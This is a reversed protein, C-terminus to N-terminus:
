PFISSLLTCNHDLDVLKTEDFTLNLLGLPPTVEFYSEYNPLPGPMPTKPSSTGSDCGSEIGSDIELDEQTDSKSGMLYEYSAEILLEKEIEATQKELLNVSALLDGSLDLLEERIWLNEREKLESISTRLFENEEILLNLKSKAALDISLKPSNQVRDTINIGPYYSPPRLTPEQYYPVNNSSPEISHVPFEENEMLENPKRDNVWQRFVMNKLSKLPPSTKEEKLAAMQDELNSIYSIYVKQDTHLLELRESFTMAVVPLSISDFESETPSTEGNYTMMVGSDTDDVLKEGKLLDSWRNISERDQERTIETLAEEIQRLQLKMDRNELETKETMNWAQDLEAQSELYEIKLIELSKELLLVHAELADLLLKSGSERDNEKSDLKKVSLKSELQNVRLLIAAATHKWLKEQFRSLRKTLTLIETSTMELRADTLEFEKTANTMGTANFAFMSIMSLMGERIQKERIYEDSLSAIKQQIERITEKVKELEEMKLLEFEAAEECTQIAISTLLDLDNSLGYETPKVLNWFSSVRSTEIEMSKEIKVGLSPNQTSTPIPSVVPTTNINTLGSIREKKSKHELKMDLKDLFVSTASDEENYNLSLGLSSSQFGQQLSEYQSSNSFNGQTKATNSTRM